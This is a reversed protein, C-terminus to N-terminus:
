VERVLRENGLKQEQGKRSGSWRRSTSSQGPCARACGAWSGEDEASQARGVGNKTEKVMPASFGGPVSGCCLSPCIQIPRAQYRGLRGQKKSGETRLLFAKWPLDTRWCQLYLTCSAVSSLLAPINIHPLIQWLCLSFGMLRQM